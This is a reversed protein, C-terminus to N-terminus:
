IGDRWQTVSELLQLLHPSARSASSPQKVAPALSEALKKGLEVGWQDFANIGWVVSQVFVKHEYLAVLKGLTEPDTSKFMLISSPRDGPHVKEPLVGAGGQGVM